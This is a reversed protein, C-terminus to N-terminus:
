VVQLVLGKLYMASSFGLPYPHDVGMSLEKIVKIDRCSDIASNIIIKKFTSKDVLGSCSFTMLYGGPRLINIARTNIKKYGRLGNKLQSTNKVFKPPDLIIIDFFNKERYYLDLVKFVNERIIQTNDRPISNLELNEKLIDLAHISRDINCVELAGKKLAHIGFGGTYSFCNLVKKGKSIKRLFYRNERQDLYFGTKHGNKLDVLFFVDKERIKVRNPVKKYLEGRCPELGEKYRVEVDSREYIGLPHMLEKLCSIIFEQRIHAGVSLFQCVLYDLYRDVILGPIDDGESNIIRYANSEIAFKQELRANYAQRIRNFIAEEHYKENPDFSVMRVRIQSAPSYWGWGLPENKFDLVWVLDGPGPGGVVRYIAGSYIWPHRHIVSFDRGKKLIVRKNM